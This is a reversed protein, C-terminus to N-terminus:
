REIKWEGDMRSMPLPFANRRPAPQTQGNVVIVGASSAELIGFVTVAVHEPPKSQKAQGNSSDWPRIIYGTVSANQKLLATFFTETGQEILRKSSQPSLCNLWVTQNRERIAWFYTQATAEPTAFGANTLSDKSLVPSNALFPPLGPPQASAQQALSHLRMNEARLAELERVQERLQHVENRLKPLEHNQTQLNTIEVSVDQWTELVALDSKLQAAELRANSLRVSEARLQKLGNHQFALFAALGLATLIAFLKMQDPHESRCSNWSSGVM